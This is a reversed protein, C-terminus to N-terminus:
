TADVRATRIFFVGPLSAALLSLGFGVSAALAVDAPVGFLGYAIILAGERAGWGGLAIPLLMILTAPLAAAATEFLGIPAGVARTFVFVAIVNCIHMAVSALVVAISLKWSKRLHRVVSTLDALLAITRRNRLRAPLYYPLISILGSGAFAVIGVVCLGAIILLSTRVAGPETRALLAPQCALVMALLVAFGLARELLIVKASTRRSHGRLVLQWIRAADGAVFTLLTQSVLLGAIWIAVGAGWSCEDELLFMIWRLRVGALAAQLLLFAIALVFAILGDASQLLWRTSSWDVYRLLFWILAGTVGIKVAIVVLKM